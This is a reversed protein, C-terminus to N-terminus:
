TRRQGPAEARARLAAVARLRAPVAHAGAAQVVRGTFGVAEAREAEPLRHARDPAFMSSPTPMSSAPSSPVPVVDVRLMPELILANILTSPGGRFQGVCIRDLRGARPREAVLGAGQAVEVAGAERALGELNALRPDTKETGM